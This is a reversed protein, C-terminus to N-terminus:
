VVMVYGICDGSRMVKIYLIQGVAFNLLTLTIPRLSMRITGNQSTFKVPVTPTPPSGAPSPASFLSSKHALAPFSTDTISLFINAILFPICQQHIRSGVFGIQLITLTKFRPSNPPHLGIAFIDNEPNSESCYRFTSGGPISLEFTADTEIISKQHELPKCSVRFSLISALALFSTFSIM